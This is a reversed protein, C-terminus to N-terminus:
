LDDYKVLEVGGYGTFQVRVSRSLDIRDNIEEVTPVTILSSLPVYSSGNALWARTEPKYRLFWRMDQTNVFDGAEIDAMLDAKTMIWCVKCMRAGQVPVDEKPEVWTLVGFWVKSKSTTERPPKAMIVCGIECIRIGNIKERDADVRFAIAGSPESYLPRILEQRCSTSSGNLSYWFHRYFRHKALNLPM